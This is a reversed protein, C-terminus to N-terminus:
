YSCKAVFKVGRLCFCDHFKIVTNVPLVFLIDYLIDVILNIHFVATPKSRDASKLAYEFM